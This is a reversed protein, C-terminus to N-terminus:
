FTQNLRDQKEKEKRAVIANLRVAFEKMTKNLAQKHSPHLTTTSTGLYENKAKPYGPHKM